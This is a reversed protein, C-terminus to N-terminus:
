DARRENDLLENALGILLAAPVAVGFVMETGVSVARGLKEGLWHLFSGLLGGGIGFGAFLLLWGVTRRARGRKWLVGALVLCCVAAGATTLVGSM